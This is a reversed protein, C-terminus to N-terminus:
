AYQKSLWDSIEQDLATLADDPTKTGLIVEKYADSFMTDFESINIVAPRAM